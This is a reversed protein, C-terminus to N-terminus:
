LQIRDSLLRNVMMHYGQGSQWFSLYPCTPHLCLRFCLKWRGPLAASLHDSRSHQNDPHCLHVPHWLQRCTNLERGLHGARDQLAAPLLLRFRRACLYVQDQACRCPLTNPNLMGHNYTIHARGVHGAWHRTGFAAIPSPSGAWTGLETM